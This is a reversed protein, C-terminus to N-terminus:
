TTRSRPFPAMRRGCFHRSCMPWAQLSQRVTPTGASSLPWTILQAIMTEANRAASAAIARVCYDILRYGSQEGVSSSDGASKILQMYLPLRALRRVRASMRDFSLDISTRCGDWVERAEGLTWASLLLSTGAPAGHAQRIAAALVPHATFEIEPPTRLVLMFGLCDTLVQRLVLDLQRCLDQIAAETRLGDIVVVTPRSLAECARELTLLADQGADISAYRLIHTALDYDENWGDLAHLQFDTAGDQEALHYTLRSKGSGSPGKLVFVRTPSSVFNDFAATAGPPPAYSLPTQRLSTTATLLARTRTTSWSGLRDGDPADGPRTEGIAEVTPEPDLAREFRERVDDPSLAFDTDLMQQTEYRLRADGRRKEWNSVAAPAVGLHEAFLRVSMRKAIRLARAEHGTWQRVTMVLAAGLIV